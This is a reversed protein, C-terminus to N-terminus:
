QRAAALIYRVFARSHAGLNALLPSVAQTLATRKAPATKGLSAYLDPAAETVGMTYNPDSTYKEPLAAELAHDIADAM